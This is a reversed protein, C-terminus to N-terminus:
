FVGAAVVGAGSSPDVSPLLLFRSVKTAKNAPAPDYVFFLVVGTAVAAGGVILSVNSAWAWANAQEHQDLGEQSCLLGDCKEDAANKMGLAVGGFVFGLAAVGLGSGGVIFALTHDRSPPEVPVEDELVPVEVALAAGKELTVTTTFRKKGQAEAAIELPGPDYPLATDLVKVERGNVLVRQGVAPSKATITLKSLLPEVRKIGDEAQQKRDAKGSAEAQVLADKFEIYATATKGIQEHCTALYLLTGVQPDLAQSKQFRDCAPALEGKEVLEKGEVFLTEAAAREELTPEAVAVRVFLLAGLCAASWVRGRM